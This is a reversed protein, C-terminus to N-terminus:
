NVIKMSIVKVDDLPRDNQDTKVIAIKDIIEIGKVVEGFVTYNMDLFPTGGITQYTKRQASTFKFEKIEPHKSKIKAIIDLKIKNVGGQDGIQQKAKIESLIASNEPKSLYQNVHTSYPGIKIYQEMQDLEANTYKRGQVIYFQSGSSKKQPNIEDGTRAASLAGKKHYLSEKFEANITYTPGGDGLSQGKKATKSKPDGTQVMFDKIVRHFLVGNYYKENVLKIFNAMHLPTENYLKVVIDGASTKIEVKVGKQDANQASCNYALTCIFIFSFILNYWIKTKMIEFM